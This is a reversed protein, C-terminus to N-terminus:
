RLHSLFEDELEDIKRRLSHNDKTLKNKLQKTNELDSYLNCIVEDRKAIKNHLRDMLAEQTKIIEELNAITKDLNSSDAASLDTAM